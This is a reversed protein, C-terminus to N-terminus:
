QYRREVLKQLASVLENESSWGYSVCLEEEFYRSAEEGNNFENLTRIVNRFDEIDGGFLENAYLYRENLGIATLLDAIPQKKLQESLSPDEEESYQENLDPISAVEEEEALKDIKAMEPAEQEEEEEVRADNKTQAEEEIEEHEKSSEPEEVELKEPTPDDEKQSESILAEATEERKAKEQELEQEIRKAHELIQKDDPEELHNQEKALLYKLIATKEHLRTIKALIVSIELLPMTPKESLRDSHLKINDILATIEERKQKSDM